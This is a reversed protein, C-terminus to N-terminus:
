NANIFERPTVGTKRKFFRIFHQPYQFGLSYATQSVNAGDSLLLMKARGLLKEQIYDQATVGAERKVLDGFYNASLAIRDAFYKVNPLGSALAGGDNVYEDLMRDFRAMIGANLVERVEFQRSYYRMCYELLLEINSVILKKSFKDIPHSLEKAIRRLCDEVNSTEDASLHLAEKSEYGFFTYQRMKQALSTRFLLDPHFILGISKPVADSETVRTETYQGPGICVVSQNDYDYRTRGYNISCGKTQKLFLAYVGWQACHEKIQERKSFEVVAVLPHRVAFGFFDCYATVTDFTITDKQM